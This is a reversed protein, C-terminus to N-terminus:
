PMRKIKKFTNEIEKNISNTTLFIGIREYYKLNSEEKSYIIYLYYKNLKKHLILTSQYSQYKKNLIKFNEIISEFNNDKILYVPLYWDIQYIEDKIFTADKNFLPSSIIGLHFHNHNSTFNLVMM